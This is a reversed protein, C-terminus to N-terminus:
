LEAVSLDEIEEASRSAAEAEFASLSAVCLGPDQEKIGLEGASTKAWIKGLELFNYHKTSCATRFM